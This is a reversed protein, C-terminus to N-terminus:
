QDARPHYRALGRWGHPTYACCVEQLLSNLRQQIVEDQVGLTGSLHAPLELKWQRLPARQAEAAPEGSEAGCSSSM